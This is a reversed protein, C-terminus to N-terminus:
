IRWEFISFAFRRFESNKRTNSVKINCICYWCLKACFPVHIYLEVPTQDEDGLFLDKMAEVYADHGYVQDWLGLTPYSTYYPGEATIEPLIEDRYKNEWISSRIQISNM